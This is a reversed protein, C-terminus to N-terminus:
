AFDFRGRLDRRLAGELGTSARRGVVDFRVKSGRRLAGGVVYFRGRWGRRLEGCVVDFCGRLVRRLAGEFWTSAGGGVTDIRDFVDFRGRGRGLAGEM